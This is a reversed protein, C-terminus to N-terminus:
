LCEAALWHQRIQRLGDTELQRVMAPTLGLRVGVEQRTHPKDQWGVRLKLVQGVRAPALALVAALSFHDDIRRLRDEVSVDEVDVTEPAYWREVRVSRVMARIWIAAYPGFPGKRWDYRMVAEQLALCGEQFLDDFGLRRRRAVEGAIAGVLGLHAGVLEDRAARGEAVLAALDAPTAAVEDAQDLWDQALLGAEIRKALVIEDNREM